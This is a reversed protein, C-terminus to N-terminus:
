ALSAEAALRRAWIDNLTRNEILRGLLRGMARACRNMPSSSCILPRQGLSMCAGCRFGTKLVNSARSGGITTSTFRWLAVLM